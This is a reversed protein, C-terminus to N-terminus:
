KRTLEFNGARCGATSPGPFLPFAVPHYTITGALSGLLGAASINTTAKGLFWLGERATGLSEVLDPPQEYGRSQDGETLQFTAGSTSALGEFECGGDYSGFCSGGVSVILRGGTQRVEASFTRRRWASALPTSESPCAADAEITLTYSGAFDPASPDRAINFNRTGDATLEVREVAGFYGYQTVRVYSVSPVGDLRYRGDLGAVTAAVPAASEDAVTKAEVVAGPIPAASTADTIIGTLRYSGPTPPRPSPDTPPSCAAGVVSLGLVAVLVVLAALRRIGEFGAILVAVRRAWSGRTM